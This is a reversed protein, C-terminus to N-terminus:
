KYNEVANDALYSIDDDLDDYLMSELTNWDFRNSVIDDREAASLNTTSKLYDLVAEDGAKVEVNPSPRKRWNKFKEIFQKEDENLNLVKIKSLLSDLTEDSVYFDFTM